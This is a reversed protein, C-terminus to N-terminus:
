IRFKRIGVNKYLEEVDEMRLTDELKGQCPEAYHMILGIDQPSISDGIDVYVLSEMVFVTMDDVGYKDAILMISDKARRRNTFVYLM